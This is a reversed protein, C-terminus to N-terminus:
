QNTTSRYREIVYELQQKGCCNYMPPVACKNNVVRKFSIDALDRQWPNLEDYTNDICATIRDLTLAQVKELSVEKGFFMQYWGVVLKNIKARNCKWLVKESFSKYVFRKTPAEVIAQVTALRDSAESRQQLELRRPSWVPKGEQATEHKAEVDDVFYYNPMQRFQYDRRTVKGTEKNKYLKFSCYTGPLPNANLRQRVWVQACDFKRAWRQITSRAKGLVQALTLQSAGIVHKDLKVFYKNKGSVHVCGAAHASGDKKLKPEWIKRKDKATYRCANQQRAIAHGYAAKKAALSSLLVELKVKASAFVGTSKEKLKNIAVYKVWLIDKRREYAYLFGQKKMKIVRGMFGGVTLSLQKATISVSSRVWGSGKRDFSRLYYYTAASEPHELILKSHIRVHTM